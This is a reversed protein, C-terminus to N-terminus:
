RTKLMRAVYKLEQDVVASLYDIRCVGMYEKKKTPIGLTRKDVQPKYFQTLPVQTLKSWFTALKKTNQDARCQVTVRFRSEDTKYTSRLLNIFMAIIEPDSNGFVVTSARKHGEALHLIALVIKRVSPESLYMDLLHQNEALFRQERSDRMEKHVELARKRGRKLNEINLIEIRRKQKKSMPVNVCWHSITGKPIEIGLHDQIERYTMGKARLAIVLSKEKRM